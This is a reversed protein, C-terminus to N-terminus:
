REHLSRLSSGGHEVMRGVSLRLMCFSLGAFFSGWSSAGTYPEPFEHQFEGTAGVGRYQAGLVRLFGREACFSWQEHRVLWGWWLVDDLGWVRSSLITIGTGLCTYDLIERHVRVM